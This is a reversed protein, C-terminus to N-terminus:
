QTSAVDFSAIKEGDDDFLTIALSDTLPVSSAAFILTYRWEAPAGREAKNYDNEWSLGSVSRHTEGHRWEAKFRLRMLTDHNLDADTAQTSAPPEAAANGARAVFMIELQVVPPFFRVPQGDVQFTTNPAPGNAELKDFFEGQFHLRVDVCDRRHCLTALTTPERASQASSSEQQAGDDQARAPPASALCLVLWAAAIAAVTRSSNM